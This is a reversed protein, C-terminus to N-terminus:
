FKMGLISELVFIESNGFLTILRFSKYSFTLTFLVVPEFDKIVTPIM